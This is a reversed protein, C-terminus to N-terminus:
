RINNNWWVRDIYIEWAIKVMESSSYDPILFKVAKYNNENWPLIDRDTASIRNKLEVWARM